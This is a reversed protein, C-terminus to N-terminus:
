IIMSAIALGSDAGQIGGSACNGIGAGGCSPGIGGSSKSIVKAVYAKDKYTVAWAFSVKYWDFSEEESPNVSVQLGLQQMRQDSPILGLRKEDTLPLSGEAIVFTQNSVYLVLM